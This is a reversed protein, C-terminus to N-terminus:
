TEDPRIFTEAIRLLQKQDAPSMRNLHGAMVQAPSGPGDPYEALIPHYDFYQAAANLKVRGSSLQLGRALAELEFRNPAEKMDGLELRSIWTYSLNPAPPKGTRPDVTGIPADLTCAKAFARLSLGLQTRQDRVLKSLPGPPQDTAMPVQREFPSITVSEPRIKGMTAHSRWHEYPKQSTAHWEM